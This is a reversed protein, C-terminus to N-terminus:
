VLSVVIVKLLKVTFADPVVIVGAIEEIVPTGPADQLVVKVIVAGEPFPTPPVPPVYPVVDYLQVGLVAITGLM